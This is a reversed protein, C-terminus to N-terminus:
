ADSLSTCSARLTAHMACFQADLVSTGCLLIEWIEPVSACSVSQGQETSLDAGNARSCAYMHTCSHMFAHAHTHVCVVAPANSPKEWTLAENAFEADVYIYMEDEFVEM